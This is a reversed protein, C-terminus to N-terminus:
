SGTLWTICGFIIIFLYFLADAVFLIKSNVHSIIGVVLLIMEILGFLYGILHSMISAKLIKTKEAYTNQKQKFIWRWKKPITAFKPKGGIDRNQRDISCGVERGIFVCILMWWLVRLM